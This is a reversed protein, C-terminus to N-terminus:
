ILNTQKKEIKEHMVCKFCCSLSQSCKILYNFYIIFFANIKFLIRKKVDEIHETEFFAINFAINLKM